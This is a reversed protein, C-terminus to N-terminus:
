ASLSVTAAEFDSQVGDVPSGARGRAQALLPALMEAVVTEHPPSLLHRHHRLRQRTRVPQPQRPVIRKSPLAEAIRPM